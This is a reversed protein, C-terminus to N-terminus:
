LREIEEIDDKFPDNELLNSILDKSKSIEKEKTNKKPNYFLELYSQHISNDQGNLNVIKNQNIQDDKEEDDEDESISTSHGINNRTKIAIVLIVIVNIIVILAVISIVVIIELRM